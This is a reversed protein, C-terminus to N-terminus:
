KLHLQLRSFTVAGARALYGPEPESVRIQVFVINLLDPGLWRPSMQVFVINLLLDPGLWRPSMQVFVINLLLDPGQWRPSM